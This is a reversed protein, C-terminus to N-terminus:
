LHLTQRQRPRGNKYPTGDEDMNDEASEYGRKPDQRVHVDNALHSAACRCDSAQQLIQGPTMPWKTGELMLEIALLGEVKDPVVKAKDM